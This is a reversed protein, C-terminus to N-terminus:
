IGQYACAPYFGYFPFQVFGNGYYYGMPYNCQQSEETRCTGATVNPREEGDESRIADDTKM